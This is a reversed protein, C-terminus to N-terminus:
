KSKRLLNVTKEVAEVNLMMHNEFEKAAAEFQSKDLIEPIQVPAGLGAVVTSFPKPMKHKDWSKSFVWQKTSEVHLPVLPTSSKQSVTIAGHQLKYKPGRPGDPTIAGNQGTKIGKIMSLLARVGGRSSSGRVTQNGLLEVVTAAFSGDKSASVLSLLRQNRLLVAAYTINNHWFSYIWNENRKKLDEIHELGIWKKRCSLLIILMLWKLLRPALYSSIRKKLSDGNSM